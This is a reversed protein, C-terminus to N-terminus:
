SPSTNRLIRELSLSSFNRVLALFFAYRVPACPDADACLFASMRLCRASLDLRLRQFNKHMCNKLLYLDRKKRLLDSDYCEPLIM